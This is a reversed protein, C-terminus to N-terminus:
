RANAAADDILAHLTEPNSHHIMHGGGEIEVLRADPLLRALPRAQRAPAVIRDATGAAIRVPLAIRALDITGAPSLPLVAAADEGEAVLADADLVQEWPFTRRWEPPVPAPAFMEHQVQELAMRDLRMAGAMRSLLPGLLPMSRPALFLHEFPRPEPFALPSILVLARVREAHREALALAVVAGFSHGVVIAPGVGLRRLGAAIQGAQDRPTGFFRPRRSGGHGPRDVLHVRYHAALADAPGSLWDQHTALAGHLLVLDPGRGGRLVALSRGEGLDLSTNDWM